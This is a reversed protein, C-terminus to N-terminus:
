TPPRSRSLLLATGAAAIAVFVLALSLGRFKALVPLLAIGNLIVLIGGFIWVVCFGRLLKKPWDKRPLQSYWRNLTASPNLYARTAFRIIFIGVALYVILIFFPNTM